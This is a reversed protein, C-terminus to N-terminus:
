FRYDASKSSLRRRTESALAAVDEREDRELLALAADIPECWLHNDEFSRVVGIIQPSAGAVRLV